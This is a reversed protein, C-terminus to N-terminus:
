PVQRIVSAENITSFLHAHKQSLGAFVPQVDSKLGTKVPSLKLHVPSKVLHINLTGGRGCQGISFAPQGEPCKPM